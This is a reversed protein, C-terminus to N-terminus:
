KKQWFTDFVLKLISLIFGVFLGYGLAATYVAITEGTFLEM